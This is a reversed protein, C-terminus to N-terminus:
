RGLPLGSYTLRGGHGPRIHPPGFEDPPSVSVSAIELVTGGIRWQVSWVM